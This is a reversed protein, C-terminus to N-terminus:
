GHWPRRAPYASSPHAQFFEHGNGMDSEQQGTEGYGPDGREGTEKRFIFYQRRGIFFIRQIINYTNGPRHHGCKVHEAQVCGGKESLEPSRCVLFMVQMFARRRDSKRQDYQRYEGHHSAKSPM